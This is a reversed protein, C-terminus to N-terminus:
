TGGVLKGQAPQKGGLKGADTGRLQGAKGAKQGVAKGAFPYSPNMTQTEMQGKNKKHKMANSLQKTGTDAKNFEKAISQKIGLKKAFKPDHAAAAMTRAQKETTSKEFLQDLEQEAMLIKYNLEEVSECNWRRLALAKPTPKGNPKKMPGKNGSMRACFSKRRKADKSGAKLKSPKTTVATKLKSGPHERRYANVAKQSLGNTKDHHNVKNWDEAVGQEKTSPHGEVAEPHKHVYMLERKAEAASDFGVVSYGTAYHYVYWEGNGPSSEPDIGIEGVPKGFKDKFVKKVQDAGEAVGQEKKKKEEWEKRNLQALKNGVGTGQKNFGPPNRFPKAPSLTYPANPDAEAVGQDKIKDQIKKYRQFNADKDADTKGFKGADMKKDIERKAYGPVVKRLTQPLGEAVGQEPLNPRTHDGVRRQINKKLVNVDQRNVKGSKTVRPSKDFMPDMPDSQQWAHNPRPFHMSPGREITDAIKDGFEQRIQAIVEEADPYEDNLGYYAEPDTADRYQDILDKLRQKKESDLGEAVSESPVCNPVTKGGKKKTGVPHYGKWCPNSNRLSKGAESILDDQWLDALNDKLMKFLKDELVTTKM